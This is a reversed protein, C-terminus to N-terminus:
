GDPKLKYLRDREVDAVYINGDSDTTVGTPNLKYNKLTTRASEITSIRQGDKSFVSVRYGESVIIKGKRTIALM